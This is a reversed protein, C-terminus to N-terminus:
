EALSLRQVISEVLLDRAAVKFEIYHETIRHADFAVEDDYIEYLIVRDAGDAPLLVDFRRCGPEEALSRRANTLILPMFEDRRGTRIKMEVLLALPM